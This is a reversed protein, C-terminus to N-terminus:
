SRAQELARRVMVQIIERRYWDTSRQDTIPQVTEAIMQNLRQLNSVHYATFWNLDELLIPKPGVAGMAVRLDTMGDETQHFGVACNAVAIEHAKRKGEKVFASRLNASPAPLIVSAVLEGHDLVTQGPGVFFQKLPLLREQGKKQLKVQAGYILLVPVLDAAPSANCINGVVTALNRILPSSHQKAAQVLAPFQEQVIINKPLDAVHVMAGIELWAEGAQILTLEEVQQLSVVKEPNMLGRKWRVMLDTGGAMLQYTKTETLINLVENVTAPQYLTFTKM